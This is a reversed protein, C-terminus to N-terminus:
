GEGFLDEFPPALDVVIGITARVHGDLDQQAGAEIRHLGCVYHGPRERTRQGRKFCRVGLRQGVCGSRERVGAFPVHCWHWLAREQDTAALAVIRGPLQKLRDRCSRPAWPILFARGTCAARAM